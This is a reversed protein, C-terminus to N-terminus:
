PNRHDLRQRLTKIENEKFALMEKCSKKAADLEVKMRECSRKLEDKETMGNAFERELASEAEVLSKELFEMMNAKTKLQVRLYKIEAEPTEFKTMVEEPAPDPESTQSGVAQGIAANM